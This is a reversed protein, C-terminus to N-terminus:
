RFQYPFTVLALYVASLRRSLYGLNDEKIGCLQLFFIGYKFPFAMFSLSAM